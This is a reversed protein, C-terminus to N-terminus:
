GVARKVTNYADHVKFYSSLLNYGDIVSAIVSAGPVVANAFALAYSVLADAVMDAPDGSIAGSTIIHSVNAIISAGPFYGFLDLALLYTNDDSKIANELFKDCEKLYKNPPVVIPQRDIALHHSNDDYKYWDFSFYTGFRHDELTILPVPFDSNHEEDSSEYYLEYASDPAGSPKTFMQVKETETDRITKFVKTGGDVIAINNTGDSQVTANMRLEGDPGYETIVQTGDYLVITERRSGDSFVQEGANAAFAPAGMTVCLALVIVLSLLRRVPRRQNQTM